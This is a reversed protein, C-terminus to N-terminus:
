IDLVLVARWGSDTQKVELEHMTVAKVDVAPEHRQPDIEEGFAEAFLRYRGDKNEVRVERVTLPLQEADKYFIFEQIYDFLLIELSEASAQITRKHEHRITDLDPVMVNM